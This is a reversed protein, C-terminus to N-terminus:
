KARGRAARLLLVGPTALVVAPVGYAIAALEQMARLPLSQAPGLVPYTQWNRYLVVVMIVLCAVACVLLVGGLWRKWRM